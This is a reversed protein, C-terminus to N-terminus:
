LVWEKIKRGIEKETKASNLHVNGIRPPGNVDDHRSWKKLAEDRYNGKELIREGIEYLSVARPDALTSCAAQAKTLCRSFPM